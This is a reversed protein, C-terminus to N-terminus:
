LEALVKKIEDGTAINPDLQLALNLAAKAADANGLKYLIMGIHYQIEANQPLKSASQQMYPLAWEPNGQKYLIWGLTDSIHPDDPALQNARQALKLAKDADNLQESYLYALNNVANASNTDLELVKEYADRAKPLDGKKQYLNGYLMYLKPDKPELKLAKEIEQIGRDYKKNTSYLKALETYLVALSPDVAIGKTFAAEAKDFAGMIGYLEGLLQYLKASPQSIELQKRVREVAVQPKKDTVDILAIEVIAEVMNPSLKIAHEFFDKAEETKGGARLALGMMYLGGPDEPNVDLVKQFSTAAMAADGKGLYAQGLLYHILPTKPRTSFISELSDVASQFSGKAIDLSALRVAADVLDPDASVAERLRLAANEPDGTAMQAAGILYLVQPIGPRQNQVELLDKLADAPKNQAMSMQGRLLLGNPDSPSKALIINILRTMEEYKKEEFAMGALREYIPIYDPFKTTLETAIRKAEPKNGSKAYFDSLKMQATPNKSAIGAASLYEQEAQKKDNKKLFVEGLGFHADAYDPNKALAARFSSEATVLDNSKLYLMGFALQFPAKDKFAPEVSKLRRLAEDVDPKSQVAESLMVLAELNTPERGLVRFLDTKANDNSGVAIETAALKLSADKFNPDLKVAEGFRTRAQVPDNSQLATLGLLYQVLAVNPRVKELEQLDSLALAGDGKSLAWQSRILRGDLDAPNKKFITELYKGCEDLKQEELSITALRYLAPLFEPDKEIATNLVALAAEKNKMFSYYDALTMRGLSAEPLLDAAAKFEQEAQVFNKKALAIKGLALHAQPIDTEGKLSDMFESEAKSLDGKRTYLQGLTMFLKQRDQPNVELNELRGLVDEIDEPKSSIDALYSLAQLNQPEKELIFDIEKRADSIKGAIILVHTAKFRIELNDPDFEKAKMLVQLANPYDGLKFFSFGLQRFAAANARNLQIVNKYEIIAEKYKEEAFFKDGNQMYQAIKTEKSTCAFIATLIVISVICKFLSRM